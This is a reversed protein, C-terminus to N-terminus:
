VMDSGSRVEARKKNPRFLSCVWFWFGGVRKKKSDIERSAVLDAVYQVVAQAGLKVIERPPVELPTEDANFVRLKSLFRFSDPLIHIQDSSIDLEELMELNGISRPLMRLDAFNKSVNLRVLSTVFCLSEPVSELENFSVDLERLSVLSAMTTPLSKIRNYHLTLTQLKELKGVAEPLAKLRNFDLRLETLSVCSGITYPLEELENTEVNLRKLNTMNGISDPLTALQNSSLDLDILNVLKGITTPLSALRNAHLDLETLNCLDGFSEPLNTLQNSHLDLKMLSKLNGISTPLATIRNESLDLQTTEELKGLSSPLWEIQDTLKGRLNLVRSEKKASSEIVSAVQILSLKEPDGSGESVESKFSDVKVNVDDGYGADERFSLARKIEEKKKKKVVEEFREGGVEGDGDQPSVTKSARQILEDFVHLRKDLNLVHVADKRQEYAVLSVWNRKAEKFVFFLEEPVETSREMKELESLKAEEESKSSDVVSMAADVEEITPRPPLSRYLSTLEDILNAIAPKIAM